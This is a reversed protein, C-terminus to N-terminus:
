RLNLRDVLPNLINKAIWSIVPACVADGFATLSQVGDIVISYEDPLGQLRACERPTMARMRIEGQGAQILFQRGSGGAATRLCGALDDDRVEARQFGERRRRFFTRFAIRDCEALRMVRERHPDKMMKLHRAVEDDPWWRSDFQDLREVIEALGGSM